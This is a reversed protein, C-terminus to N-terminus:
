HCSTRVETTWPSTRVAIMSSAASAAAIRHEVNTLADTGARRRAKTGPPMASIVMTVNAMPISTVKTTQQWTKRNM